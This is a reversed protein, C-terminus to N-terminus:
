SSSAELRVFTAKWISLTTGTMVLQQDESCHARHIHFFQLL